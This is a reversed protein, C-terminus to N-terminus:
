DSKIVYGSGHVTSILETTFPKDVKARLRSMHTQVLSTRPNFNYGWIKELLMTKTIVQGANEMLYELIRYERPLLDLDKGSRSVKQTLRDLTLDAIQYHTQEEKIPPRRLLAKIRAYFESFAFPKVLYDDAGAELGDVRDRVRSMATLLMIPTQINVERLLKIADKGDMDPLMRDFVMVDYDTQSASLIASKADTLHTVTHDNEILGNKIFSATEVDDEVLLVNMKMFPKTFNGYLKCQENDRDGSRGNNKSFLETMPVCVTPHHVPVRTLRSLFTTVKFSARFSVKFCQNNLWYSIQLVWPKPM